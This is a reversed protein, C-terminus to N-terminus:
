QQRMARIWGNAVYSVFGRKELGSGIPKRGDAYNQEVGDTLVPWGFACCLSLRHDHVGLEVFVLGCADAGYAGPKASFLRAKCQAYFDQISLLCCLFIKM